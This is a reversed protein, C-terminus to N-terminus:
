FPIFIQGPVQEVDAPSELLHWEGSSSDVVWWLRISDSLCGAFSHSIYM